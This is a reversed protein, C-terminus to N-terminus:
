RHDMKVLREFAEDSEDDLDGGGCPMQMRLRRAEIRQREAEGQRSPEMALAKSLAHTCRSLIGTPVKVYRGIAVAKETEEIADVVRGQAIAVVGARYACYSSVWSFRASIESTELIDKAADVHTKADAIRGMRMRLSAFTLHGYARQYWSNAKELAASLLKEAEDYRGMCYYNRSTNYRWVLKRTPIDGAPGELIRGAKLLLDLGEEYREQGGVAMGLWSYGLSILLDDPALLRQRIELGETMEGESRSFESTTLHYMAKMSQIFAWILEDRDEEVCELFASTACELLGPVVNTTDNDHIANAANALLNVFNMTPALPEPKSQSNEYNMVEFDAITCKRANILAAMQNLALPLGGLEGAVRLAANREDKAQCRKSAMQLFFDAAENVDFGNIEIGTDIPLTAIVEDRTIVLVAGHKANPWYNDVVECSDVNDFTLLWKAPITQLWNRVLLMNEQHAHAHAAPLKLADVAVRSFSLQVSYADEASIWFVADLDNLKQYAYALAIQTKGIGGLGYLAISSLRSNTDTPTLHNDIQKMIAHRGFFCVNEAVPLTNCPLTDEERVGLIIKSMSEMSLYHQLLTMEKMAHAQREAMEAVKEIRRVAEDITQYADNYIKSLSEWASQDRDIDNSKGREEKRLTMIINLWLIVIEKHVEVTDGKVKDVDTIGASCDNSVRLKHGINDLWKTIRSLTSAQSRNVGGLALPGLLTCAKFILFLLGWMMSTDVPNEMM